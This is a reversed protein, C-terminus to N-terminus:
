EFFGPLPDMSGKKRREAYRDFTYANLWKLKRKESSNYGCYIVVKNPKSVYYTSRHTEIKRYNGGGCLKKFETVDTRTFNPDDDKNRLEVEASREGPGWNRVNFRYSETTFNDSNQLGPYRKRLETRTAGLWGTSATESAGGSTSTTSVTAGGGAVQLGYIVSNVVPPLDTTDGQRALSGFTLKFVKNGTYGMVTAGGSTGKPYYSKLAMTAGRVNVREVKHRSKTEAAKFKELEGKPDAVGEEIELIMSWGRDAKEWWKKFPESKEQKPVFHHPVRLTTGDPATYPQSSAPVALAILALVIFLNFIRMLARERSGSPETPM